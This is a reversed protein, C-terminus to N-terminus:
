AGRAVIEDFGGVDPWDVAIPAVWRVPRRRDNWVVTAIVLEVNSRRSHERRSGRSEVHLHVTESKIGAIAIVNEEASRRREQKLRSWSKVEACVFTPDPPTM